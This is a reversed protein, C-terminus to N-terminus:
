VEKYMWPATWLRIIEFENVDSEIYSNQGFYGPGIVYQSGIYHNPGWGGEESQIVEQWLGETWRDWLERLATVGPRDVDGFDGEAPVGHTTNPDKEYFIEAYFKFTLPLFLGNWYYQTYRRGWPQRGHKVTKYTLSM